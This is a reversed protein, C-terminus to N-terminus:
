GTYALSSKEVESLAGYKKQLEQLCFKGIDNALETPTKQKNVLTLRELSEVIGSNKAGRGYNDRDRIKWNYANTFIDTPKITPFGYSSLTIYKVTGQMRVMYDILYKNYRLHGRPNEMFWFDPNLEEIMECCKQLLKIYKLANEKPRQDKYYYDGAGYSFATCPPSGWVVHVKKFPIFTRSLKNFDIRVSPECVGKRQRIDTNWTNFGLKKLEKSFTGSGCFFEVSNFEM